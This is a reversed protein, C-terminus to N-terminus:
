NGTTGVIESSVGDSPLDATAYSATLVGFAAIAGLLTLLTRRMTSWGTTNM